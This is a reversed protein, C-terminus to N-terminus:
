FREIKKQYIAVVVIMFIVGIAFITGAVLEIPLNSTLDSLKPDLTPVSTQIPIVTSINTPTLTPTPEVIVLTKSTPIPTVSPIPEITPEITPIPTNTPTLTPTPTATPQPIATPTETPNITPKPTVTPTITPKPTQTPILTPSPTPTPKATPIPTPTATPLPSPTPSVTPIPTPTAIPTATPTPSPTIIPTPSPTIIPTPSPMPTATPTPTPTVIPTSYPQILITYNNPLNQWLDVFKANSMFYSISKSYSINQGWIMLHSEIAPDYCFIGLEDYGVVVRAHGERIDSSYDQVVILPFGRDIYDHLLPITGNLRTSNFGLTKPISLMEFYYTGDTGNNHVYLAIQNLTLNAGYYNLVMNLSAIGCWPLSGQSIYPVNEVFGESNAEVTVLLSLTILIIIIIKLIHKM